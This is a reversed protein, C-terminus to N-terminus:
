SAAGARRPEPPIPRSYDFLLHRCQQDTRPHMRPVFRRTAPDLTAYGDADKGTLHFVLGGAEIPDGRRRLEAVILGHRWERDFMAWEVRAREAPSLDRLMSQHSMVVEAGELRARHHRILEKATM